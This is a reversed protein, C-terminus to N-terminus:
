FHIFFKPVIILMKTSLASLCGLTVLTGLGNEFTFNLMVVMGLMM